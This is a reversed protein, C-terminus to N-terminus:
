LQKPVTRHGSSRAAFVTLYSTVLVVCAMGVSDGCIVDCWLCAVFMHLISVSRATTEKGALCVCVIAPPPASSTDSATMGLGVCTRVVLVMIIHTARSGINM